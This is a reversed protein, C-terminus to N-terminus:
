RCVPHSFELNLTSCDSSWRDTHVNISDTLTIEGPVRCMDLIFVFKVEKPPHTDKSCTDLFIRLLEFVRIHPLCHDELDTEDECKGKTPILFVNPGHYTTHGAELLMVVEPLEESPLAVLEKLFENKLHDLIIIKNYNNPDRVIVARCNARKNIVEFM